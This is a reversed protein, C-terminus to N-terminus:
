MAILGRDCGPSDRMWIGQLKSYHGHSNESEGGDKHSRITTAEKGEEHNIWSDVDGVVVGLRLPVDERAGFEEVVADLHSVTFFHDGTAEPTEQNRAAIERSTAIDFLEEVTLFRLLSHGPAQEQLSFLIAQLGCLLGEGDTQLLKFGDGFISSLEERTQNDIESKTTKTPSGAEKIEM